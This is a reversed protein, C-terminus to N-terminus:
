SKVSRDNTIACILMMAMSTVSMVSFGNESRVAFDCFLAFTDATRLRPFTHM